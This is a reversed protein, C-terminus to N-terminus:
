RRDPGDGLGIMRSVFALKRPDLVAHLETIVGSRTDMAVVAYVAGERLAIVGPCGNVPQPLLTTGSGPGFFGLVNTSVRDRGVQVTRVGLGGGMDVDGAVDPDLLNMLADLDGGACAAIFRDAVLRHEAGTVEFRGPGTESEVQRRARSALKRCAQPTRGVITAVTDFPFRFVDHLVFVAREPPTLAELVVLLAMRVSDDLTIRDAPDAPDTPRRSGLEAGRESSLAEPEAGGGDTEHRHRASRLLDLCLRSVVVILWGRVDDIEDLDQRWLRTFGEQVVDEADNVNGLMRFALGVLFARHEQWIVEIQDDGVRQSTGDRLTM